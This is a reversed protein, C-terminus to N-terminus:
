PPTIDRPFLNHIVFEPFTRAMKHPASNRFVNTRIFIFKSFKLRDIM